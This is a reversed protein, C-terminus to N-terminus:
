LTEYTNSNGTLELNKFRLNDAPLMEVTLIEDELKRLVAITEVRQYCISLWPNIGSM